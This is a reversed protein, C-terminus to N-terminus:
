RLCLLHLAITDQESILSPLTSTVQIYVGIRYPERMKQTVCLDSKFHCLHFLLVLVYM